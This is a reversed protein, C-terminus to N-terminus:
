SFIRDKLLTVLEQPGITASLTFDIEDANKPKSAGKARDVMQRLTIEDGREILRRRIEEPKAELRCIYVKWPAALKKKVELAMGTPLAQIYIKSFDPKAFTEAAYQFKVAASNTSSVIISPCPTRESVPANATSVPSNVPREGFSLNITHSSLVFSLMQHPSIFM